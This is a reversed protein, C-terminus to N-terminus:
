LSVDLQEGSFFHKDDAAGGEWGYKTVEPELFVDPLVTWTQSVNNTNLMRIDGPFM